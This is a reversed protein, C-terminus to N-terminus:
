SAARLMTGVARILVVPDIPKALRAYGRFSHPLNIAEYGSLFLFPIEQRALVEALPYVLEGRLNIDLVACDFSTSRVAEMAATLTSFPGLVDYGSEQLDASMLASLLFEDEVLLVRRRTDPQENQRDVVEDSKARALEGSAPPILQFPGRIGPPSYPNHM